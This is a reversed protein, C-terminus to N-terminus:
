TFRSVPSTRETTTGSTVLSESRFAMESCTSMAPEWRCVSPPRQYRTSPRSHAAMLRHVVVSPLVDAALDARVDALVVEGLELPRNVARVMVDRGDVKGAVHGLQVEPVRRVGHAPRVLRPECTAKAGMGSLCWGVGSSRSSGSTTGNGGSTAM